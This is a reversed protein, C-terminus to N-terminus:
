NPVSVVERKKNTHPVCLCWMKIDPKGVAQTEKQSVLKDRDPVRHQEPKHRWTYECAPILTEPLCVTEM